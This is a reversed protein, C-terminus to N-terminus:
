SGGSGVNFGQHHEAARVSSPKRIDYFVSRAIADSCHNRDTEDKIRKTEM